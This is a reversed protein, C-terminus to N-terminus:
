RKGIPGARSGRSPIKEMNGRKLGVGSLTTNRARAFCKPPVNGSAVSVRSQARLNLKERSEPRTLQDRKKKQREVTYRYDVNIKDGDM